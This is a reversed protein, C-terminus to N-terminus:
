SIFKGPNHIMLESKVETESSKLHLALFKPILNRVVLQKCKGPMEFNNEKLSKLCNTLEFHKYIDMMVTNKGHSIKLGNHHTLSWEVSIKISSGINHFFSNIIM